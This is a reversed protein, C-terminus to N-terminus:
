VSLILQMKQCKSFGLCVAACCFGRVKVNQMKPMQSKEAFVVLFGQVVKMIEEDPSWKSTIQLM